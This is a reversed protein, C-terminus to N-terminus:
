YHPPEPGSPATAGPFFARSKWKGEHSPCYETGECSKVPLCEVKDGMYVMPLLFQSIKIFLVFLFLSGYEVLVHLIFVVQHSHSTCTPKYQHGLHSTTM